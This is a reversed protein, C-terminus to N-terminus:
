AVDDDLPSAAESLSHCSLSHPTAAPTKWSGSGPSEESADAEPALPEPVEPEQPVKVAYGRRVLELGIDLNQGENLDFLHVAPWTTTGAQVYSSIRAVLPKWDACHTLREFEDLAAEEWQGGAPAVGALSCEIAQFPLSLFDSRLPRLDEVPSEGNDGFDVFYLDMKGSDLPGLVRARYWPGDEPLPAAVIDGVCVPQAADPPCSGRYHRTMDAVLQDLRLSRPGLIQIWFHGPNESASVYVELLEDAPFSLDPSPVEFKPSKDPGPKPPGEVPPDAEDGGGGRLAAKWRDEPERPTVSEGAGAAERRVGVPQKRQVRLEASHAIHHRLVEDEQVKERILSKATDVEKQSGSLNIFRTLLLAGEAERDCSIRAGSSKCISRITEGGRGIIKGISRQPVSIQEHVQAHERLLRHVAAEAKCVQVPFGSILLVREEGAGEMDVNIRAGTEKRLKKINAGQRGIILKLAEQPVRVEVEMDDDGVFTVREEPGTSPGVGAGRSERFRRYLIYGVTIGAPVGLALAVKQGTALSQWWSRGAAM